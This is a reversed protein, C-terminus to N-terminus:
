KVDGIENLLTYIERNLTALQENEKIDFQYDDLYTTAIDSVKIAIGPSAAIEFLPNSQEKEYHRIEHFM